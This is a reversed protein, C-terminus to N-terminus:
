CISCKQEEIPYDIFVLRAAFLSFVIVRLRVAFMLVRVASRACSGDRALSVGVVDGGGRAM